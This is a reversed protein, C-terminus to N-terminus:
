PRGGPPPAPDLQRLNMLPLFQRADARVVHGRDCGLERLTDVIHRVVVPEVDVFTVERAGGGDAETSTDILIVSEGAIQAPMFLLMGLNM